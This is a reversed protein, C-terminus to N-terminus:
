LERNTLLEAPASPPAIYLNYIAFLQVKMLLEALLLPPAVTIAQPYTDFQVKMLLEALLLPPAIEPYMGSHSNPIEDFASAYLQVKM